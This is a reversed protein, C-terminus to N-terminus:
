RKPGIRRVVVEKVWMDGAAGDVEFRFNWGWNNAFNADDIKFTHRHWAAERPITWWDKTAHYGTRSEYCVKCGAAKDPNVRRAVLTIELRSDGVSAYSDDVDFYMYNKKNAKDTRRAHVGDVLGTKTLGDGQELQTLGEAVNSRGMTCTVVEAHGYDKLWPFVKRGNAKVAAV